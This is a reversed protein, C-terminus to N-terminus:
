SKSIVELNQGSINDFINRLVIAHWGATMGACAPIWAVKNQVGVQAPTVIM